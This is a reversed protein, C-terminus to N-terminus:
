VKEPKPLAMMGNFRRFRVPLTEHHAPFAITGYPTGEPTRFFEIDASLDM